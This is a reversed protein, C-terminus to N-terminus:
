LTNKITIKLFDIQCISLIAYYTIEMTNNHYMIKSLYIPSKFIPLELEICKILVECEDGKPLIEGEDLQCSLSCFRKPASLEPATPPANEAVM